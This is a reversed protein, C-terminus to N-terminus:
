ISNDSGTHIRVYALAFRTGSGNPKV